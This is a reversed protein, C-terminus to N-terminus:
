RSENPQMRHLRMRRFLLDAPVYNATRSYQLDLPKESTSSPVLVGVM